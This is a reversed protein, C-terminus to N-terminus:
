ANSGYRRLTRALLGFSLATLGTAVGALLSMDQWFGWPFLAVLYDTQPNLQWFSNDFAVLHFGIFMWDFDTVFLAATVLLLCLTIVAGRELAAALDLRRGSTLGVACLIVLLLLSLAQLSSNFAFLRKVDELHIIEYEHFLDFTLGAPSVLQMQPSEDMSNFYRILRVPIGGLQEESLGTAASVDYREFGELYLRPSNMELRLCSCLCLIPVVLPLIFRLLLASTDSRNIM